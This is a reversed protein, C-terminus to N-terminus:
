VGSNFGKSDFGELKSAARQGSDLSQCPGFKGAPDRGCADISEMATTIAVEIGNDQWYKKAGYRGALRTWFTPPVNLDVNAGVNFNLLNGLGPDAVLVVTDADVGWFERIALGPTEPYNQCLLRLKMGTAKELKDILKKFREEEGPTLFNAVDIVTTFEKPLLEPKSVGELRAGAPAGPALALAAGAAAALAARRGLEQRPASVDESLRGHQYDDASASSVQTTRWRQEPLSRQLLPFRPAQLRLVRSGFEWHRRPSTSGGPAIVPNYVAAMNVAAGDAGGICLESGLLVALGFTIALYLLSLVKEGDRFGRPVADSRELLLADTLPDPM